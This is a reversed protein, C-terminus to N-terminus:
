PAKAVKLVSNHYGGTQLRNGPDQRSAKGEIVYKYEYEGADLVMKKEFQGSSDPGEMELVDPKWDNFTGALFVTRTGAPPKYRFTVERRGDALKQVTPGGLGLDQDALSVEVYGVLM